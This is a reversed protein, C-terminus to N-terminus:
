WLKVGAVVVVSSEPSVSNWDVEVGAGSGALLPPPHHPPSRDVADAAM